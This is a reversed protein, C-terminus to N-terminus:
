IDKKIIQMAFIMRWDVAQREAKDIDEASGVCKVTTRNVQRKKVTQAKKVRSQPRLSKGRYKIRM